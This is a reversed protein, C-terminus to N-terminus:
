GDSHQCWQNSWHNSLVLCSPLPILFSPSHTQAAGHHIPLPIPVPIAIPYTSYREGQRMRMEVPAEMKYSRYGTALRSQSQSLHLSKEKFLLFSFPHICRFPKRALPHNALNLATLRTCSVAFSLPHFRRALPPPLSLPGSDDRGQM